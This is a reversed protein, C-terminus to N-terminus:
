DHIIYIKNEKIIINFISHFLFINLILKRKKFRHLIILKYKDKLILTLELFNMQWHM